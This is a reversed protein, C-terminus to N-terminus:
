AFLGVAWDLLYLGMALVAFPVLIKGYWPLRRYFWGAAKKPQQKMKMMM